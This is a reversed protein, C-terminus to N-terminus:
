YLGSGVVGAGIVPNGVFGVNNIDGKASCNLPPVFIMGQNARAPRGTSQFAFVPSSSTVYLNATYKDGEIILFDGANTLTEYVTTSGDIFISTNAESAILMVNEHGDSGQGKVFIYENGNQLTELGVLQDVHYDRSSDPAGGGGMGDWTGAVSGSNVVIPKSQDKNWLADVSKIGAGILDLRQAPTKESANTNRIKRILVYSEGRDLAIPGTPTSNIISSNSFNIGNIEVLTNDETAMISIFNIATFGINTSTTTGNPAVATRFETGPASKGKSVFGGQQAENSSNFRVNAYFVNSSEIIYGKNSVKGASNDNVTFQNNPIPWDLPNNNSFSVPIWDTRTGGVPKIYASITGEIPTTLYIHQVDVEDSGTDGKAVPPIYHTKGLQSYVGISAFLFLLVTLLRKLM